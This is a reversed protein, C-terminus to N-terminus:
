RAPRRTAECHLSPTLTLTRVAKVRLLGVRRRDLFVVSELMATIFGIRQVQRVQQTQPDQGLAM